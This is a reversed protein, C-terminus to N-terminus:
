ELRRRKLQKQLSKQVEELRRSMNLVSMNHRLIHSGYMSNDGFGKKAMSMPVPLYGVDTFDDIGTEERLVKNLLRVNSIHFLDPAVLSNLLRNGYQKQRALFRKTSTIQILYHREEKLLSVSSRREWM